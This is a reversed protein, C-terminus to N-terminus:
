MLMVAIKKGYSSNDRSRKPNNRSLIKRLRTDLGGYTAVCWLLSPFSGINEKTCCNGSDGLSIIHGSLGHCLDCANFLSILVVLLRAVM